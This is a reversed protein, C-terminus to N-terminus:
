SVVATLDVEIFYTQKNHYYSNYWDILDKQAKKSIYASTWEIMNSIYENEKESYPSNRQYTEFKIKKKSFKTSNITSYVRDLDYHSFNNSMSVSTFLSNDIEIRQKHPIPGFRISAGDYQRIVLVSGKKMKSKLMSLFTDLNNTYPFINFALYMDALPIRNNDKFIDYTDFSYDREWNSAVKSAYEIASKDYDLGIFTCETSAYNNFLELWFGPGCGLDVITSPSYQEMLSKVFSTREPLKAMHHVKLWDFSSLPRSTENHWKTM